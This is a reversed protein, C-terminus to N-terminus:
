RSPALAASTTEPPLSSRGSCSWRIVASTSGEGSLSAETSWSASAFLDSNEIRAKLLDLRISGADGGLGTLDFVTGSIDADSAAIDALAFPSAGEFGESDYFTGLDNAAIQSDRIDLKGSRVFLQGGTTAKVGDFVGPLDLQVRDLSITGATSTGLELPDPSDPLESAILEDISRVALGRWVIDGPGGAAALDIRGGPARLRTLPDLTISGGILSLTQTTPAGPRDIRQAVELVSGQVEILAPLPNAFHFVITDGNLYAPLAEDVVHAFELGNATSAFFSGLV